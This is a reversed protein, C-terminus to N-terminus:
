LFHTTESRQDVFQRRVQSLARRDGILAILLHAALDRDDVGHRMAFTTLGIQDVTRSAPADGCAGARLHLVHVPQELLEGLHLPHHLRHFAPLQLPHESRKPPPAARRSETSGGAEM